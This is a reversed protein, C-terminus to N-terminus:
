SLKNIIMYVFKRQLNSEVKRLLYSSVLIPYLTNALGKLIIRLAIVISNNGEILFPLKYPNKLNLNILM